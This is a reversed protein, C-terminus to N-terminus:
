KNIKSFYDVIFFQISMTPFIKIYCYGLGRYFGKLGDSLYIKKICDIIGNYKVVDSHLDQLQLRRRILDTPYTISVATLGSLGGSLLNIINKNISINNSINNSINSKYINYFMFNLSNYPVFGCLTMRYGNFLNKLSTKKFVDIINKYYNNNVQTSLRTRANDLPYTFTTAAIGSITGCTLNIFKDDINLNINNKSYNFVMFNIGSNPFIRICNVYNGKWLSFFGENQLISKISTSNYLYYNQNYIKLLELPATFTRSVVGAFGGALAFKINEKNSM